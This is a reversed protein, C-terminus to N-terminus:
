NSLFNLHDYELNKEETKSLGLEPINNERQALNKLPNGLFQWSDTSFNGLLKITISGTQVHHVSQFCRVLNSRHGQILSLQFVNLSTIRICIIWMIGLIMCLVYHLFTTIIGASNYYMNKIIHHIYVSQVRFYQVNICVHINRWTSIFIYMIYEDIDTKKRLEGVSLGTVTGLHM